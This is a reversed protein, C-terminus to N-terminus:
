EYGVLGQLGKLVAIEGTHLSAHLIVLNHLLWSLTQSGPIPVHPSQGLQESTVTALYAETSAYVAAGYRRASPLDVRVRKSWAYWDSGRRPIPLSIGTRGAWDTEGLLPRGQLDGQIFADESGIVHAYTAAITNATGPPVWHAHEASLGEITSELLWHADALNARVIEISSM